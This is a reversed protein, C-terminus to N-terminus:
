RFATRLRNSHQGRHIPIVTRSACSDACLEETVFRLLIEHRAYDIDAPARWLPNQRLHRKAFTARDRYAAEWLAETDAYGCRRAYAELVSERGVQWRGRLAKDPDGAAILLVALRGFPFPEPPRDAARARKRAELAALRDLLKRNV